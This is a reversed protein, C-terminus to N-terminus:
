SDQDMEIKRAKLSWAQAADNIAMVLCYVAITPFPNVLIAQQSQLFHLALVLCYVVLAGVLYRTLLKVTAM